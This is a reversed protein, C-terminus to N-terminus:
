FMALLEEDTVEKVVPKDENAVFRNFAMISTVVGDIRQTSTKNAKLPKYNGNVDSKIVVNGYMWLMIPNNEILEGDLVAKELRQTLPSFSKLSQDVPVEIVDPLEEEVRKILDNSHWSDYAIELVNYKECTSKVYEFIYSYDITSGPIITILGKDIWEQININENKYREELTDAPLWFHHKMYYKDDYKFCLSYATWDGVFSLDFAATCMAGALKEEDVVKDKNQQLKQIPIWSSVGQNFINCTKALFESVRSPTAEADHLDALLIDKSLISGLSPNAKILLDPNHWDDKDDYEYTLCFYSDDNILGNLIKHVKEVEAYCPRGLDTGATTIAGVLSNKRARGGYKGATWPYDSGYM